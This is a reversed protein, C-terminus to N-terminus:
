EPSRTRPRDDQLWAALRAQGTVFEVLPDGDSDPREDGTASSGFMRLQRVRYQQCLADIRQQQEATIKM